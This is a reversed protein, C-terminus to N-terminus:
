SVLGPKQFINVNLLNILQRFVANAWIQHNSLTTTKSLAYSPFPKQLCYIQHYLSISTFYTIFTISLSPSWLRFIHFKDWDFSTAYKNCHVKERWFHGFTPVCSKLLALSWNLRALIEMMSFSNLLFHIGPFNQQFTGMTWFGEGCAFVKNLSSTNPLNYNHELRAVSNHIDQNIPKEDLVAKLLM